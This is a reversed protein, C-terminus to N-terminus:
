RYREVHWTGGTVANNHLTKTAYVRVAPNSNRNVAKGGSWEAARLVGQSNCGCM